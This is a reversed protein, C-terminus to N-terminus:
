LSDSMVSRSFQVSPPLKLTSPLITVTTLHTTATLSSFRPPSCSYPEFLQFTIMYLLASDSCDAHRSTVLLLKGALLILFPLAARNLSHVSSSPRNNGLCLSMCIMCCFSFLCFPLPFGLLKTAEQAVRKGKSQTGSALAGVRPNGAVPSGPGPGIANGKGQTQLPDRKHKRGRLYGREREAM